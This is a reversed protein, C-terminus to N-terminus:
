HGKGIKSLIKFLTPTSITLPSEPPLAKRLASEKIRRSYKM